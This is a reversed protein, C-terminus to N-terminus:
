SGSTIDEALAVGGPTMALVLTVVMVLVFVIAMARRPDSLFWSMLSWAANKM